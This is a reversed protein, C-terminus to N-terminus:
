RQQMFGTLIGAYGKGTVAWIVGSIFISLACAARLPKEFMIREFGTLVPSDIELIKGLIKEKLGSPPTVETDIKGLLKKLENDNM